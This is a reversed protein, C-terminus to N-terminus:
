IAARRQDLCKSRRLHMDVIYLDTHRRIEFRSIDQSRLSAEVELESFHIALDDILLLDRDAVDLIILIQSEADTLIQIDLFFIYAIVHLFSFNQHGSRIMQKCFADCETVDFEDAYTNCGDSREKMIFPMMKDMGNLTRLRRGDKRDGIHKKRKVPTYVRPQAGTPEDTTSASKEEFEM